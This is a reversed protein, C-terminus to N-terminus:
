WGARRVLRPGTRGTQGNQVHRGRVPGGPERNLMAQSRTQGDDCDLLRDGGAERDDAQRLNLDVRADVLTSALMDMSDAGMRRSLLWAFYQSQYATIDASM